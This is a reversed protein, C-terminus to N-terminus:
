PAKEEAYTPFRRPQKALGSARITRSVSHNVRIDFFREVSWRRRPICVYATDGLGRTLTSYDVRAHAANKTASSPDATWYGLRRM